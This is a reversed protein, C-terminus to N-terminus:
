PGSVASETLRWVAASRPPLTVTLAGPESVVHPAAESALVLNARPRTMWPVDIKQTDAGGTRFAFLITEAHQRDTFLVADWDDISRPQPLPFYADEDLIHRIEKYAEVAERIERVAGQSWDALAGNFSLVGTMRSLVEYKTAQTDGAGAFAPVAMNTMRTPWFRSAGTQNFRTVEPASTHDSLWNGHTRRISNLDLRQGGGNCAEIYLEPHRDVLTELIRNYGRNYEVGDEPVSEFRFWEVGWSDIWYELIELAYEVADPRELALVLGGFSTMSTESLSGFDRLNADHLETLKRERFLDPRARVVDSDPAALQILHWLGFRMGNARVHKALNLIDEEGNPFRRPDPTLWNGLGSHVNDSKYWCADLCFVEVGLDAAVTADATLTDINFDEYRGFWSDYSVPLPSPFASKPMLDRLRRRQLRDLDQWDSIAAAGLHVVPVEISDGAALEIPGLDAHGSVSFTSRQEGHFSMQSFGATMRWGGSWEMAVFLGERLPVGLGIQLIPSHIGSNIGGIRLPRAHDHTIFSEEHLRFARPPYLADYHWSGSLHRTRPIDDVEGFDFTLTFPVVEIDTLIERGVNTITTTWELSHGDAGRAACIEVHVGSGDGMAGSNTPTLPVTSDAVRVSVPVTFRAKQALEPPLVAVFPNRATSM